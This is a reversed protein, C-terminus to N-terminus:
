MSPNRAAVASKPRVSFSPRERSIANMSVASNTTLGENTNYSFQSIYVNGVMTSNSSDAKARSRKAVVSDVRQPKANKAQRAAIARVRLM